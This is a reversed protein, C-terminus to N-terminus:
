VTSSPAPGPVTGSGNHAPPLETGAKEWPRGYASLQGPQRCTRHDPRPASCPTSCALGQGPKRAPEVAVRGKGPSIYSVRVRREARM